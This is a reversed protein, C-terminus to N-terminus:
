SLVPNLLFLFNGGTSSSRIIMPHFIQGLRAHAQLVLLAICLTVTWREAPPQFLTLSWEQWQGWEHSLLNEPITGTWDHFPRSGHSPPKTFLATLSNIRPSCMWTWFTCQM